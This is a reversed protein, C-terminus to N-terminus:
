GGWVVSNLKDHLLKVTRKNAFRRRLGHSQLGRPLSNLRKGGATRSDFHASNLVRLFVELKSGHLGLAGLGPIHTTALNMNLFMGIAAGLLRQSYAKQIQEVSLGSFRPNAERVNIFEIGGSKQHRALVLGADIPLETMVDSYLEDTCVVTFLPMVEYTRRLQQNLRHLSDISSKVEIAHLYEGGFLLDIVNNALLVEQGLVRFAGGFVRDCQVVVENKLVYGDLLSSSYRQYANEYVSSLNQGKQAIADETHYRIYKQIALPIRGAVIQEVASTRFASRLYELEFDDAKKSKPM